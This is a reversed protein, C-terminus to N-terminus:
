FGVNRNGISNFSGYLGYRGGYFGAPQWWKSIERLEADTKKNLISRAQRFNFYWNRECAAARNDGERFCIKWKVYEQIATLTSEVVLQYGESDMPTAWAEIEVKLGDEVHPEFKVWCGDLYFAHCSAPNNNQTSGSCCNCATGCQNGCNVTCRHRNYLFPIQCGELKLCQLAKFGDCLKVRNNKTYATQSVPRYITAAKTSMTIKEYAEGSWRIMDPELNQLTYEMGLDGVAGRLAFKPSVLNIVDIDNESGNFANNFNGGNSM